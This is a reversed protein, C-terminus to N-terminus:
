YTATRRDRGESSERRLFQRGLAAFVDASPRRIRSMTAYDVGFLGFRPRFGELWEFNDLLSWYFYGDIRTGASLRHALVLSHERLFDARRRDDRTAIGNETVILPLGTQAAQRLVADFGEPRIEWGMDTLGRAAPDRYFFEGIAGPTGRFRIHVRSYYNVGVFDNSGAFDPLRRRVRGQGPFSWDLVGTAIAELLAANYLREGERALRRDLASGPRAPAFELMNHAIGVRSGPSAERLVAAAEAHALLLHEFAKAAAAFSRRGPPIEGGLYGGLLFVVPENLTVWLRVRPGLADAVREAYRRFGAVSEKAEWGGAAHFWRPNTYHHLTVCPEIGLRSLAAVRDAEFRLAAESFRGPEPEIRSRELSFRYANASLSPLLAFDASWRERHGSGAGCREAAAKLRGLSEWETWDNDPAGEVQYASTATGWLFGPFPNDSVVLPSTEPKM